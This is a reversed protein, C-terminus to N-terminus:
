IAYSLAQEMKVKRALIDELLRNGAEEAAKMAREVEVMEAQKALQHALDESLEAQVNMRPHRM